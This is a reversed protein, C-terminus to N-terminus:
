WRASSGQAAPTLAEHLIPTTLDREDAQCPERLVTLKFVIDSAPPSRRTVM